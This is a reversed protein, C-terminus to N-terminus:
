STRVQSSNLPKRRIKFPAAGGNSFRRESVIRGSHRKEIDSPEPGQTNTPPDSIPEFYDEEWSFKRHLM